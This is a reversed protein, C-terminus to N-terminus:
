ASSSVGRAAAGLTVLLSNFARLPVILSQRGPGYDEARQGPSAPIGARGRRARQPVDPLLRFRPPPCPPCFTRPPFRQLQLASPLVLPSGKGAPSSRTHSTRNPPSESHSPDKFM